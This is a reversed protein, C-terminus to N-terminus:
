KLNSQREQLNSLVEEYIGELDESHHSYYNMSNEFESKTIKFESYLKTYDDILKNESKEKKNIKTLQYEAEIMHVEELILVFTTKDIIDSPTIDSKQESCSVFLIILLFLIKKM